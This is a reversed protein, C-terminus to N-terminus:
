FKRITEVLFRIRFTRITLALTHRWVDWRVMWSIEENKRAVHAGEIFFKFRNFLREVDSIDNSFSQMVESKLLYFCDNYLALRSFFDFDAFDLRIDQNYGRTKEFAGLRVCTGSNVPLYDKLSYIGEQLIAGRHWKFVSRYIPSFPKYTRYIVHPVFVEIDSYKTMKTELVWLYNSPFCTDEDLLLLADINELRHALMAAYNYAASVGGNHSDHRYYVMKSGLSENLPKPSNEFIVFKGRYFQLLTRYANTEKLNCNYLVVVPLINM